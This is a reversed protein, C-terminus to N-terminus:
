LYICLFVCYHWILDLNILHHWVRTTIAWQQHGLQGLFFAPYLYMLTTFTQLVHSLCCRIYEIWHKPLILKKGWSQRWTALVKQRKFVFFAPLSLHEESPFAITCEYALIGSRPFLTRPLVWSEPALQAAALACAWWRGPPTRRLRGGGGGGGAAAWWAAASYM